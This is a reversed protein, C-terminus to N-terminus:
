LKISIFTFINTFNFLYNPQHLIIHSLYSHSNLGENDNGLDFLPDITAINVLKGTAEYVQYMTYTM